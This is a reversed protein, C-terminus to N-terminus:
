ELVLSSVPVVSFPREPESQTAVMEEYSMKPSFTNIWEMLVIINLPKPDIVIIVQGDQKAINEAMAFADELKEKSMARDIIIDAKARVLGDVSMNNIIDNKTADIILFGKKSILALSKKMKETENESLSGHIVLGGSQFKNILFEEKLTQEIDDFDAFLNISKPGTDQQTFETSLLSIDLYTENGFDRAKEINSLLNRAYPSFSLSVNENITKIISITEKDHLGMKNVIIAVKYYNQSIPVAKSYEVWPKLDKKNKNERLSSSIEIQKLNDIKPIHGAAEVPNSIKVKLNDNSDLSNTAKKSNRRGNIDPLTLIYKPSQNKSSFLLKDIQTQFKPTSKIDAFYFALMGLCIITASWVLILLKKKRLKRFM